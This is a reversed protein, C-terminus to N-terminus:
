SNDLGAKDLLSVLYSIAVENSSGSNILNDVKAIYIFIDTKMKNPFKTNSVTINIMANIIEKLSHIKIAQKFYQIAEVVNSNLSQTMLLIAYKEINDVYKELAIDDPIEGKILSLKELYHTLVVRMDGNSLNAIRRLVIESAKIDEKSCIFKLRPLMEDVMLPKFEMEFCRSKIPQIIKSYYNGILILKCWTGYKEMFDRLAPQTKPPTNDFEDCVIIKIGTKESCTEAYPILVDRIFDM